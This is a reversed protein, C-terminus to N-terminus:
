VFGFNKTKVALLLKSRLIHKSSYIPLYLRSICTNASPLHQDDPPRLTITPMPQFGEESAPLAPSGTWFYVLDQRERSTMKEMISWFWKKFRVTRETSEKGEDIFSTYSILSQVNVEPVGNLLLRLDEATLGELSNNLLVDFVGTRLAELAREQSKVMRYEAYRRVYDYVNHVTVHTNRGDPILEVTDGGEEQGLDITFTLDLAAIVEEKNNDKNDGAEFLIQRLSEYLVPDFFALDHWGIRRNLIYKLVHRSLPIPCLENQLLCLGMVRGINRFANLREPTCKGQRPSYFGTKGPQYFFPSNDECPVADMPEGLASSTGAENLDLPELKVACKNSAILDVCEDVRQKLSEESTLLLILQTASQELLMGTIKAALLPRLAQVRPYLRAGLQKRHPSLQDNGQSPEGSTAMAFAPAEVRLMSGSPGVARSSGGSSRGTASSEKDKDRSKLRQILDSVSSYQLTRNGTQCGELNPINDNALVAEAFSAYFSRAVGSGEGPEDRFIVKVRSIALPPTGGMSRRSNNTYQQNLERFTLQLLAGREREMKALSLDRQQSGRLKEMDRRFRAEKVPFGGLESIISGPEAGVDDVFVRGFLELTLHWRSLLADHPQGQGQQRQSRENGTNQQRAGVTVRPWSADDELATRLSPRLQAASDRRNNGDSGSAFRSPPGFLDLRTAAPTLLQPREALPLAEALPTAFPDPPPICGLCLTSDSRQFFSHKRGAHVTQKGNSQSDGSPRDTSTGFPKEETDTDVMDQENDLWPDLSISGERMVDSLDTGEASSTSSGNNGCRLYYIMSDFVYAIHKLSAVDIIPLTDLHESSQARLLSLTYSLFDRRAASEIKSRRRSEGNDGGTRSSGAGSSRTGQGSIGQGGASAAGGTLRKNLACGFRLQGETSDMVTMFWNWTPKLASEVLEYLSPLHEPSLVEPPVKLLGPVLYRAGTSEDLVALLDTLQRILAGFTRALGVNTNTVSPVGGDGHVGAAAAATLAVASASSSASSSNGTSRRLSNADIYVLGNALPVSATLITNTTGTSASVGAAYVLESRSRVAWQLHPPALYTPSNNNRGMSGSPRRELPEDTHEGDDNDQEETDGADSDEEGEAGSTEGTSDDDAENGAPAQRDQSSSHHGGRVESISLVSLADEDRESESESDSEQPGGADRIPTGSGGAGSHSPGASNSSGPAAGLSSPLSRPPLGSRQRNSVAPDSSEDQEASSLNRLDGAGQGSLDDALPATSNLVPPDVLFLEESGNIADLCTALLSFHATPRAVGLRVPTMLSVAADVLERISLPLLAQFVRKCKLIPQSSAGSLSFMVPRSKRRNPNPSMEAALVTFLRVVSRVFRVAVVRSETPPPGVSSGSSTSPGPQCLTVVAAASSGSDRDHYMQQILTALLTDLMEMSCKVLLSQVFKDLLTAGAQATLPGEESTSTQLRHDGAMLAARVAPWDRLMRDLARRAFKPPDLDHDPMDHNGGSSEAGTGTVKRPPQNRSRSPRYQRQEVSQRGVTQVLFLLITEGKGNPLTALDTEHILRNLLQVRAQQSGQVLARCRCKEWCDCYATPSARKLKCDHGRHCVRACESCCCLTGTLGCTRCEFISQTIHQAGTWTFSCTDNSCLVHLPSDEAPADVPYIMQRLAVRSNESCRQAADLLLLAAHYARCSVATMFPTQGTADRACLLEHLHPRLVSAQLLALLPAIGRQSKALELAGAHAASGAGQGAVGLEGVGIGVGSGVGHGLGDTAHHGLPHGDAVHVGDENPGWSVRASSGLHFENDSDQIGGGGVGGALDAPEGHARRMMESLSINRSNLPQNNGTAGSSTQLLDLADYPAQEGDNSKNSTPVSVSVAAHLINRNGDCRESLIARLASVDGESDMDRKANSLLQCVAEANGKFIASMVTQPELLLTIVAVQSKQNHAVDRLAQLGMGMARVPPLNLWVPDRIAAVCDHALPFLCANGDRLLSLSENEGNVSLAVQGVDAALFSATHIPFAADQEARGTAVNHVCYRLQNSKRGRVVVHIGRPDVAMSLIQVANDPFAVRKPTKQLCDLTRTSAASGGGRVVQVEDKRMLRCDSLPDDKGDGSTKDRDGGGSNGEKSPFKVAVYLGDVKVVRGIPVNKVDEVFVVDKLAWEEEETRDCDDARAPKKRKHSMPSHPSPESCTSSAPSPPPPMETRDSGGVDAPSQSSQRESPGGGSTSGSIPPAKPAIIKFQCSDPLNWAAALLQGVRPQGNATTFALAGPHYVPSYRMCVQADVAIEAGHGASAGKSQKSRQCMREWIKKRQSFPLVGWWYIGGSELRVCSYLSCVHISLIREGQFENFLTAQQELRFAVPGLSEDVFTAVKGSETVVSARACRGDLMSIREHLLNLTITKPHFVITNMDGRFPECSWWRWQHLQGTTSLACLESYLSIIHVFKTNGPWFEVDESIWVPNKAKKSAGPGGAASLDASDSSSDKLASDLWKRSSGGGSGMQRSERNARLFPNNHNDGGASGKSSSGRTGRRSFGASSGPSGFMDESFMADPDIIVSPHHGPHVGHHAPHQHEQHGGMAGGADLLSMLDESVFSEGGAGDENMSADEGEEDDRSLLNNVALNVDLNTRQLERIILHRSKGQLVVQAQTVLEEPVYTAPVVSRSGMVMRGSSGPRYGGTSIRATRKVKSSGSSAAGSASNGGGAAQSNSGKNSGNNNGGGPAGDSPGKSLDLSDSLLSYAVRCVRGDDLLFGLHSPGVVCQVVSCSSFKHLFSPPSYASRRLKDAVEKLRDNLQDETGPLPFAIFHLTSM